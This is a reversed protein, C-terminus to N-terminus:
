TSSPCGQPFRRGRHTGDSRLTREPSLGASRGDLFPRLSSSLIPLMHRARQFELAKWVCFSLSRKLRLGLLATSRRQASMGSGTRRQRNAQGALLGTEDRFGRAPFDPRWRRGSWSFRQRGVPGGSEPHECDCQSDRDKGSICISALSQSARM